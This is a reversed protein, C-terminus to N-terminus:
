VDHRHVSLVCSEEMVEQISTKEMSGQVEIFM